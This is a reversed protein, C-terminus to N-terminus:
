AQGLAVQVSSPTLASHQGDHDLAEPTSEPLLTFSAASMWTLASDSNLLSQM